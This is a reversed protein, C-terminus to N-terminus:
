SSKTNANSSLFATEEEWEIAHLKAFLSDKILRSLLSQAPPALTAAFLALCKPFLPFPEIRTLLLGPLM